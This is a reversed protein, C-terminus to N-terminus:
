RTTSGSRLTATYTRAGHTEPRRSYLQLGRRRRWSLKWMREMHTTLLGGGWDTYLAAMLVKYKSRNNIVGKGKAHVSWIEVTYYLALPKQHTVYRVIRATVLNHRDAHVYGIERLGCLLYCRKICGLCDRVRDILIVINYRLVCVFVRHFPLRILVQVTHTTPVQIQFM